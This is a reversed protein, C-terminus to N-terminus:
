LGYCCLGKFPSYTLPGTLVDTQKIPGSVYCKAETASRDPDVARAADAPSVSLM